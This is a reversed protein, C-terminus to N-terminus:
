KENLLKKLTGKKYVENLDDYGGIHKDGFFIQPVTRRGNSKIIMEEKIKENNDIKKEQFSLDLKELLKKASICYPCIVSSYILIRRM